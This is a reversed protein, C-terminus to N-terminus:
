NRERARFSLHQRSWTCSIRYLSVVDKMNKNSSRVTSGGLDSIGLGDM